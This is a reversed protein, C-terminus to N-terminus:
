KFSVQLGFNYIKQQPYSSYAEVSGRRSEPDVDYIKLNFWTLLNLGNAYVRVDQLGLRRVFPAPLRYGLEVNKLRLYDSPRLWFTSLDYNVGGLRPYEAVDKTEPTWRKKHIESPIGNSNGIQLMTSADMSGRAAGQLLASFDLGKWSFGASIGYTVQPINPYGIPGIDRSDIMGDGNIDKFKIDGPQVTKGVVEPSKEIDAADYYFGDFTYGYIQGIPRGTQALLPNASNKPEDRYLVKNKAFSFNGKLFYDVSGIKHRHTVDLEYGKNSVRGVNMPPLSIGSYNPVTGRTTLIDYRYNDFYDAIVELQGKFMRLEVGLDIKREREWRM